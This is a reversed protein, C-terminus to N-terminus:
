DIKLKILSKTDDLNIIKFKEKFFSVYSAFKKDIIIIVGNTLCETIFLSYINEGSAITFRSYKQLKQIYKNSRFGHNKLGKINIIDGVIELKFGLNILNLILKKSFHSEKNKHKRYYIIFDIKKKLNGKNLFINKLVFNFKSKKITKKSLYKKLLDTSFTINKFRKNLITESLKYLKPFISKRIYFNIKNTTTFNAGGTIPGLITNPPLTLFILSNWLPLYNIYIVKKNKFFFYWLYFIGIFPSIYKYNLIFNYNKKIQLTKCQNEIEFNNIFKRALRGEGTNLSYDCAWFLFENNNKSKM